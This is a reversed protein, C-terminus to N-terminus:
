PLSGAPLVWQTQQGSMEAILDYDHDYHLVAAGGIEAAAAIMLDAPPVGRHRGRDALLSQVERARRSVAADEPCHDLAGLMERQLHFSATNRASRLLELVVIGCTLIRGARVQANFWDALVPASRAKSWM